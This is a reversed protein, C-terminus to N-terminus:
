PPLMGHPYSNRQGAALALAAIVGGRLVLLVIWVPYFKPFVAAKALGVGHM